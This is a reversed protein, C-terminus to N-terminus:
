ANNTRKEVYSLNAPKPNEFSTVNKNKDYTPIKNPIWDVWVSHLNEPTKDHDYIRSTESIPVGGYNNRNKNYSSQIAKLNCVLFAKEDKKVLVDVTFTKGFSCSIKQELHITYGDEKKFFEQLCRKFADNLSDTRKSSRVGDKGSKNLEECVRRTETYPKTINM